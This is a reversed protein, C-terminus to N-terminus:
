SGVSANIVLREIEQTISGQARWVKPLATGDVCVVIIDDMSDRRAELAIGATFKGTTVLFGLKARRNRSALKRLFHAHETPTVKKTRWNKAEAL